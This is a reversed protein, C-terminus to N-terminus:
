LSMGSLGRPRTFLDEVETEENAIAEEAAERKMDALMDRYKEHQRRAITYRVAAEAAAEKKKELVHEARDRRDVLRLHTRELELEKEKVEDLGAMDTVQGLIGAYVAAVREPMTRASEAIQADLQALKEEAAKVERRAKQLAELTKDERLRKVNTLVAFQPIM